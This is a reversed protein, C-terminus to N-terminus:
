WEYCDCTKGVLDVKWKKGDKSISVWKNADDGQPIYQNCCKKMEEIHTKARPVVFNVNYKKPKKRRDYTLKMMMLNMGEIFKHLPKDRLKIIWNNYSESLNNTIHECKITSDFHPKCWYEAPERDLWSKADPQDRKLQDKLFCGDLGVIPRCGQVFGDLFTKFSIRTGIWMKTHPDCSYKVISGPNSLLVQRCLEQMINYGEDFSGTIREVCITKTNWTTYYSINVGYERRIRPIIDVPTVTKVDRVMKECDNAVWQANALRNGSCSHDFNGGRLIMTNEDNTRKRAEHVTLWEMGDVLKDYGSQPQKKYAEEEEIQFINEFERILKEFEGYRRFDEISPIDDGDQSSYTNYYGEEADLSDVNLQAFQIYDEVMQVINENDNEEDIEMDMGDGNMDDGHMVDSIIHKGDGADSSVDGDGVDGEM